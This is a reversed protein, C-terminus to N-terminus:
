PPSIERGRTKEFEGIFASTREESTAEVLGASAMLARMEQVAMGHSARTPEYLFLRGGPKLKPVLADVTSQREAPHIDHLTHVISILDYAADPLAMKRIDGRKCEANAFDALRKQAKAIWYGSIDVGTIRGQPSLKKAITRTCIGSGCGFDLVWEDGHLGFRKVYPGYFLWEGLLGKLLEELVAEIFTPNEWDYQRFTYETM